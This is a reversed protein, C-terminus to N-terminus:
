SAIISKRVASTDDKCMFCDSLSDPMTKAIMVVWEKFQKEFAARKGMLSEASLLTVSNINASSLIMDAVYYAARRQIAYAVMQALNNYQLGSGSTGFQAPSYTLNCLWGIYDCGFQGNIILGRAGSDSGNANDMNAIGASEFGKWQGFQNFPNLRLTTTSNAGNCGSCGGALITNNVYRGGAPMQYVFYFALDEDTSELTLYLPTALTATYFKGSTILTVPVTALPTTLDQNNYIEVNVVTNPAVNELALSISNVIISGGRIQRPLFKIGTHTSSGVLVQSGNFRQQGVNGQFPIFRDQKFTSVMGQLEMLFSQIALDRSRTLIDWVNGRECDKASNAFKVPVLDSVYLGSLSDNFDVPKGDEWCECNTPSLGVVTKLCDM